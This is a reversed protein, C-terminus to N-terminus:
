GDMQSLLALRLRLQAQQQAQLLEYRNKKAAFRRQWNAGAAQTELGYNANLREGILSQHAAEQNSNFAQDEARIGAAQSAGEM